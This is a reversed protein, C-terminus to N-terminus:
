PFAAVSQPVGRNEVPFLVFTIGNRLSEAAEAGLELEAAEPPTLMSVLLTVDRGRAHQLDLALWDGGRPRTAM